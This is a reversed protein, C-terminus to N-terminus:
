NGATAFYWSRLSWSDESSNFCSRYSTGFQAPVSCKVQKCQWPKGRTPAVRGKLSDRRGEAPSSMRAGVSWRGTDCWCHSYERTDSFFVRSLESVNWFHIVILRDAACRSLVRGPRSVSCSTLWNTRRDPVSPPSSASNASCSALPTAKYAEFRQMKWWARERRGARPWDRMTTTWTTKRSGGEGGWTEWQAPWSTGHLRSFSRATTAASSLTSGCSGYLFALGFYLVSCLHPHTLCKAASKEFISWM